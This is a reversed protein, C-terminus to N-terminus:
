GVFFGHTQGIEHAILVLNSLKGDKEQVDRVVHVVPRGTEVVENM